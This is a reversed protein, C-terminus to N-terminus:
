AYILPFRKLSKHKSGPMMYMRINQLFIIIFILFMSKTQYMQFYSM